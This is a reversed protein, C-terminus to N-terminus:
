PEGQQQRQRELDRQFRARVEPPAYQNFDRVARPSLRLQPNNTTRVYKNQLGPPIGLERMRQRAGQEDGGQIMRRIDPLAENVKFQHEESAKYLEGAAPGGPAGRSFTVGAIPGLAQAAAVKPDGQGTALDAAAGIQGEPGQATLFHAVIRGMNKVYGGLTDANPDYVKRGFGKDNSLVQWAPRAVTGLKRRIMDLPGSAWGAFEEGIKGIPNRMYIATGDKAHGILIRDHKGPENESTSSLKEALKLPQLLSMPNEGVNKMMGHLRDAYGRAEDDFTKDGKMVNLGSQLLSNGAYMLGMDLMVVSIARRRAESKIHGLQEPTAGIDREIQALTARPMGNLMDKMVGLNGLTFSRSFLVLNAFKRAENSMAEQPLAGAFRNAEHAAMRIAVQPDHGKAIYKDRFNVYLGAQLDAVRDWLLTNHWFDGAKDVWRKVADGANKDFLGPIAATVKATWSRGPAMNPEEMIAHIDQHFGRPGIPAMGGNVAEVMTPSAGVMGPPPQRAKYGDFYVKFTLVKGPMAALARGWEVANHILPSNMILGM